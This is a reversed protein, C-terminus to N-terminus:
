FPIDCSLDKWDPNEKEIAELKWARKWAKIQKERMLAAEISEYMEVYVLKDIGYRSTFGKVQKRKHEEMRRSLNSTIGTYLTGNRKNTLIYVYYSKGM